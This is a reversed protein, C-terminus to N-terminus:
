CAVVRIVSELRKEGSLKFITVKGWYRLHTTTHKNGDHVEICAMGLNKAVEGQQRSNLAGESASIATQWVFWKGQPSFFGICELFFGM